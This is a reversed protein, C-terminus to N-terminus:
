NIYPVISWNMRGNNLLVIELSQAKIFYIITFIYMSLDKSIDYNM